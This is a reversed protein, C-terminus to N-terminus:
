KEFEDSVFIFFFAQGSSFRWPHKGPPLQLEWVIMGSTTLRTVSYDYLKPVM